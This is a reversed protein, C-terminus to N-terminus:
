CVKFFEKSVIYRLGLVMLHNSGGDVIIELSVLEQKVLIWQSIAEIKKYLNCQKTDSGGFNEGSSFSFHLIIDTYRALTHFFNNYM